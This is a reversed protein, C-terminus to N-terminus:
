YCEGRQLQSQKSQGTSYGYCRAHCSNYDQREGLSSHLCETFFNKTKKLKWVFIFGKSSSLFATMILDISVKSLYEASFM